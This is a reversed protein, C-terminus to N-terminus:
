EDGGFGSIPLQISPPNDILHVGLTNEIKERLNQDNSNITVRSLLFNYLEQM